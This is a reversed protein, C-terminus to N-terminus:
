LAMQPNVMGLIIAFVFIGMLIWFFKSMRGSSPRTLDEKANENVAAAPISLLLIMLLVGVFIVPLWYIGLYAPGITRVYLSVTWLALFLFAFLSWATGWPGRSKLVFAAFLTVVTAVVLAAIFGSVIM